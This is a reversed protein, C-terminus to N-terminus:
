HPKPNSLSLEVVKMSWPAMNQSAVHADTGTTTEPMFQLSGQGYAFVRRATVDGCASVDVDTHVAAAPDLNL